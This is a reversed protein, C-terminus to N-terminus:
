KEILQLFVQAIAPDFHKGSQSHVYERARSREWAPRYPRSSTLADWVDVIAFLRAAYPIQEGALGDPYGSGDWKEHHYHPIDLAPNLYPIKNLFNYAHVPHMKMIEWEEADLPGPKLLIRDPIGIKGIDHLLAGRYIHIHEEPAVGLADALLLVNEAVRQTHGETENDRLDLASSWGRLTEDYSLSLEQHANAIQRQAERIETVDRIFASFGKEQGLQYSVLFFESPFVTGDRRKLELERRQSAFLDEKGEELNQLRQFYRAKAGDPLIRTALSNGMAESKGWGFMTEAQSNWSTVRDTTDFSIIADMAGEVTLEFRKQAVRERRDALNSLMVTGILAGGSLLSLLILVPRITNVNAFSEDWDAETAIGFDYEENWAWAGVVQVGRYDRYGSIDSGSEHQQLSAAMRTFLRQNEPAGTKGEMLNVGPDTVRINLISNQNESIIGVAQLQQNFRSESVLLGNNNVAYTEGSNLLRGAQLIRSFDYMPDIYFVLGAIMEGQENQVPAGALIVAENGPYANRAEMRVPISVFSEGSLLLQLYETHKNLISATGVENTNSAALVTNTGDIIFFGRYHDEFNVPSLINQIATQASHYRLGAVPGTYNALKEVQSEINPSRAWGGVQRKIDDMWAVLGELTTDRVTELVGQVRAETVETTVSIGISYTVIILLVGLSTILTLRQTRSM